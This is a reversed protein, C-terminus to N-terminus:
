PRSRYCSVLWGCVLGGTMWVGLLPLFAGTHDWIM